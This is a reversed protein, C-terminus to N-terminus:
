WTLTKPTYEKIKRIMSTEFETYPMPKRGKRKIYVYNAKVVYNGGKEKQEERSRKMQVDVGAKNFAFVIDGDMYKSLDTSSDVIKRMTLAAGEHTDFLIESPVVRDRQQNQKVAVNLDNIVWVIHINEKSYGLEQANRSLSELKSLKSLTVDFILNPKRDKPAALVGSFTVQMKKDTIGYVDSLLEHLKSVNEPVRLSLQSLEVGTEKKVREALKDSKIALNKLHDVDFVIGEMGILNKLVHGKGSGSGGALILVNGFKPYAKGGFTILAENLFEQYGIM